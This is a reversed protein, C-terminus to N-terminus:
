SVVIQFLVNFAKQFIVRFSPEASPGYAVKLQGTATISYELVTRTSSYLKESYEYEFSKIEFLVRM